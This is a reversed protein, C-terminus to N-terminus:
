VSRKGAQSLPLEARAQVQETNRLERTTVRWPIPLPWWGSTGITIWGQGHPRQLVSKLVWKGLSYEVIRYSGSLVGHVAERFYEVIKPDSCPFWVSWFHGTGLQLEEVNQLNLNVDFTLGPQRPIDMSLDLHPHNRQLKMTLRPFAAQIEEFLRIIAERDVHTKSKM